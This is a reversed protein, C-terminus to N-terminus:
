SFNPIAKISSLTNFIAKIHEALIFMIMQVHAAHVFMIWKTIVLLIVYSKQQITLYKRM